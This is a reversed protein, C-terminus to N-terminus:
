KLLRMAVAIISVALSVASMAVAAIRLKEEDLSQRREHEFKAIAEYYRTKEEETM